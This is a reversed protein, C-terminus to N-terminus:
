IFMFCLLDYYAHLLIPVLINREKLFLYSFISSLIMISVFGFSLINNLLMGESYWCPFHILLFLISNIFVYFYKKDKKFTANLLWGRFVMEETLGVFLTIIIDTTKFNPSIKITGNQMYNTLFIYLTCIFFVVLVRKLNVKSKFMDGLNIHMDDNFHKILLFAPLTWVLNKIVGSKVFQLVYENSIFTDLKNKIFIEFIAWIAYFVAYYIWVTTKLEKKM